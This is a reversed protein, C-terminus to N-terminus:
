LYIEPWRKEYIDLAHNAVDAALDVRALTSSHTVHSAGELLVPLVNDFTDAWFEAAKRMKPPIRPPKHQKVKAKQKPTKRPAM